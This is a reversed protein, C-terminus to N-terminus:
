RVAVTFRCEEIAGIAGSAPVPDISEIDLDLENCVGVMLLRAAHTTRNADWQKLTITTRYILAQESGLYDQLELARDLNVVVELGEARADDPKMESRNGGIIQLAITSGGNLFIYRGIVSSLRTAITQKLTPIDISTAAQPQANM